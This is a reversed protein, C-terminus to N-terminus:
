FIKSTENLSDLRKQMAVARASYVVDHVRIYDVGQTFLDISTIATELDREAAPVASVVKHFSKRSHGVMIPVDLQKFEHACKLLRLCQEPTNGFGIGMDFIIRELLIGNEQLVKLKQEGWSIIHAVPDSSLPILKDQTPPLGLSHMCVLKVNSDRVVELMKVDTFGTVDNIWDIGLAIAEAAVSHNRTDISLKPKFDQDAWFDIISQLPKVLRRWEEANTITQSEDPRTSEAGIDIVEAGSAFLHKAQELAADASEFCGGDSFSDPTINLAGVFVSGDIRYPIQRTHFPADGTFRSGWSELIESPYNWTSYLDMLPWLAFPRKYLGGHPITLQETNVIKNHWMLIDIDIERPAWHMADNHGLRREIIKLETLLAEPSLATCCSLAVNFFPLAWNAPANEPLMADSQYVPSVNQVQIKPHVKLYHLAQRLNALRDGLNTGLGLIIM